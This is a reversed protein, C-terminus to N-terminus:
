VLDIPDDIESAIVTASVAKGLYQHTKGGGTVPTLTVGGATTGNLYYRVGATLGTLQNNQGEHYVTANAASAVAAIVFGEAAKGTTSGDAKRVRFSGANDWMQVFDGAALAESAVIVTTDAGIGSPMFSQDLKGAADLEPVKAVSGAGASTAITAEETGRGTTSDRKIFKPM